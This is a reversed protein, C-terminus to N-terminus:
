GPDTTVGMGVMKATMAPTGRLTSKSFMTNKATSTEAVRLPGVTCEGAARTLYDRGPPAPRGRATSRITPEPSPRLGFGLCSRRLRGDILLQQQPQAVLRRLRPGGIGLPDAIPRDDVTSDVRPVQGARV